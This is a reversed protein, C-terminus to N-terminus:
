LPKKEGGWARHGPDPAAGRRDGAGRGWGGGGAEGPSRIELGWGARGEALGRLAAEVVQRLFASLQPSGRFAESATMRELALRIEGDGVPDDAHANLVPM